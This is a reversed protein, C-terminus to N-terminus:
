KEIKTDKFKQQNPDSKMFSSECLKNIDTRLIEAERLSHVEKINASVTFSEISGKSKQNIKINITAIAL